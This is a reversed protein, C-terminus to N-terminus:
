FLQPVDNNNNNSNSQSNNGSPRQTNVLGSSPPPPPPPTGVRDRQTTSNDSALVSSTKVDTDKPAYTVTTQPNSKKNKVSENYDAAQQDDTFRDDSSQLNAKGTAENSNDETRLWLDVNPYITVRTGAPVFVVPQTQMYDSVLRQFMQQTDSLFGERADNMAQQKSTETSNEGGESSDNTSFLVALGNTILSSALPASYTQVIRRDLYGM